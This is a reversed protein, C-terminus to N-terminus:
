TERKRDTGAHDPGGPDQSPFRAHERQTRERERGRERERERERERQRERERDRAPEVSLWQLLVAITRGSAPLQLCLISLVTDHVRGCEKM